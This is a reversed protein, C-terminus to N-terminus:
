KVAPRSDISGGKVWRDENVLKGSGDDILGREYTISVRQELRMAEGRKKTEEAVGFVGVM